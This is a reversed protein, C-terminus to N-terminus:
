QQAKHEQEKRWESPTTKECRKFVTSFYSKGSFGAREAVEDMTILPDDIMMRKADAIRLETIWDRFSINLTHNFYGSLTNRNLGMFKTLDDMTIGQTKYYEAKIWEELKTNMEEDSLLGTDKPPADSLRETVAVGVKECNLSYNLLSIFIYVFMCIGGCMYIAVAWKPAFAMVAGILGFFSIGFISHYIWRIFAETNESYYNDIERVAKRYTSFFIWVIRVTDGLFFLAAAILVIYRSRGELLFSASWVVVCVAGWKSFDSIMQRRSLYREDLLSTYAMGFLIAGLYYCTINLASAIYPAETRFNFLWQLLIHVAWLFMAIALIKRTKNYSRYIETKPVQGFLLIFSFIFLVAWAIALSNNYLSDLMDTPKTKFEAFTIFCEIWKEQAGFLIM